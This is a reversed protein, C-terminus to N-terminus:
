NTKKIIKIAEVLTLETIANPTGYPWHSHHYVKYCKYYIKDFRNLLKTNKDSIHPVRGVLRLFENHLVNTLHGVNLCYFLDLPHTEKFGDEKSLCLEFRISEFFDIAGSCDFEIYNKM